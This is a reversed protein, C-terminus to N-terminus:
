CNTKAFDTYAAQIAPLDDSIKKVTADDPKDGVSDPIAALNLDFGLETVAVALSKSPHDDYGSVADAFVKEAGARQKYSVATRDSEAWVNYAHTVNTCEIVMAPNAAATPTSSATSGPSTSLTQAAPKSSSCGAAALALLALIATRRM